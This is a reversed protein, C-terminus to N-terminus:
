QEPSIDGNRVLEGFVDILDNHYEPHPKLRHGERGMLTAQMRGVVEQSGQPGMAALVQKALARYEGMKDMQFRPFERPFINESNMYALVEAANAAQHQLVAAQRANVVGRVPRPRPAGGAVPQKNNALEQLAGAGHVARVKATALRQDLDPVSRKVEAKWEDLSGTALAANHWGDALAPAAAFLL